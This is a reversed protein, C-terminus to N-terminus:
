YEIVLIELTGLGPFIQSSKPNEYNGPINLLPHRLYEESRIRAIKTVVVIAISSMLQCGESMLSTSSAREDCCKRIGNLTSLKANYIQM